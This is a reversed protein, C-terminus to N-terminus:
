KFVDRHALPAGSSEGLRALHRCRQLGRFGVRACGSGFAGCGGACAPLDCNGGSVAARLRPLAIIFPESARAASERGVLIRDRDLESARNSNKSSTLPSQELRLFAIQMRRIAPPIATLIRTAQPPPDPLPFTLPVIRPAEM